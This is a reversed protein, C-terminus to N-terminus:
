IWSLLHLIEIALGGLFVLLWFGTVVLPLRNEITTVSRRASRKITFKDEIGNFSVTEYENLAKWQNRITTVDQLQAEIARLQFRRFRVYEGGRLLIQHWMVCIPLGFVSLLCSIAAAGWISPNVTILTGLAILLLTNVSLFIGNRQMRTNDDHKWLEINAEYEALLKALRQEDVNAEKLLLRLLGASQSLAAQGSIIRFCRLVECPPGRDNAAARRALESIRSPPDSGCFAKPPLPLGKRNGV